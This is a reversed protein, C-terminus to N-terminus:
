TWKSINIYKHKIIYKFQFWSFLKNLKLQFLKLYDNLFYKLMQFNFQIFKISIFLKIYFLSFLKIILFKIPFITHLFLVLLWIFLNPFLISLKLYILILKTLGTSIKMILGNINKWIRGFIRFFGGSYGWICVGM